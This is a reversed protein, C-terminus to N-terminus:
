KIKLTKLYVKHEDTVRLSEVAKQIAKNHVWPELRKEEFLPLAAAYQKALATAFYWAAMMNIYYEGSKVAAVKSLYEPKFDEDLFHTMLMKMGFRVAYVDSSGMWEDILPPLKAKNEAFVKPSLGDCTAWNDVYPLFRSVAAACEDFDKIEAILFAHLNNEEYFEHPLVSLLEAAREDKALEKALKQLAPTRVGIIKEKNLNPVLGAHFDRYGSDRLAFLRERVYKETGNLHVM